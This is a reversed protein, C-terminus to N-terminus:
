TLSWFAFPGKELGFTMYYTTTMTVTKPNPRGLINCFLLALSSSHDGGLVFYFEPLQDFQDFNKVFLTGGAEDRNFILFGRLQTM